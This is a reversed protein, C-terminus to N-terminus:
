CSDDSCFQAGQSLCPNDVSPECKTNGSCYWTKPAGGRINGRDGTVFSEVKLSNLTIKNKKM